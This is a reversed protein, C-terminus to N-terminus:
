YFLLQTEHSKISPRVLGGYAKIGGVRLEPFLTFIEDRSANPLSHLALEGPNFSETKIGASYVLEHQDFMIHFYQVDGGRARVITDGNVLNKAAVLVEPEGFYLEARWGNLLIKHQPSVKLTEANGLAGKGIVIPAFNGEAAVIRQGVWRLPQMGSDATRVLDGEELNEVPAPGKATEIMTGRVFCTVFDWAERSATLGSYSNGVLSDLTISRIAGTELTSQDGNASFEPALYTNGNVDQYLVATYTATTGDIYTITANYIATSDFTQAAGGNISFQEAPSNNTGYSSGVNGVQSMTVFDNVLANGASGFTMGVLASANEAINDGETTDMDALVGINIVNFTIPM